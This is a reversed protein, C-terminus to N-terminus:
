VSYITPLTLHTYSVTMISLWYGRVLDDTSRRILTKFMDSLYGKQINKSNKGETNGVLEYVQTLM